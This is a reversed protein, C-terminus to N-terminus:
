SFNKFDRQLIFFFYKMHRPLIKHPRIYNRVFLCIKLYNNLSYITMVSKKLAVLNKKSHKPVLNM